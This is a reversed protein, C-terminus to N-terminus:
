RGTITAQVAGRNRAVPGGTVTIQPDNEGLRRLINRLMDKEFRGTSIGDLNIATIVTQGTWANYEAYQIGGRWATHVSLNCANETGRKLFVNYTMASAWSRWTSPPKSASTAVDSRDLTGFDVYDAAVEVAPIIREASILGSAKEVTKISTNAEAFAEIVAQWTEDFPRPSDVSVKPPTGQPPLYQFSGCAPLAALALTAITRM